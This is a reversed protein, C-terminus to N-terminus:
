APLLITLLGEPFFDKQYAPTQAGPCDWSPHPAGSPKRKRRGMVRKRSRGGGQHYVVWRGPLEYIEVSSTISTKVAQCSPLLGEAGAGQHFLAGQPGQTRPASGTSPSRSGAPFAFKGARGPDIQLRIGQGRTSGLRLGQIRPFLHGETNPTTGNLHNSLGEWSRKQNILTFQSIKLRPTPTSSPHSVLSCVFDLTALNSHLIVRFLGGSVPM